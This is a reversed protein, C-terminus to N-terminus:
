NLFGYKKAAISDIWDPFFYKVLQAPGYYSPMFTSREKANSSEMIKLACDKPDLNSTSPAKIESKDMQSADLAAKRLETNVSGPMISIISINHRKWEIRLSDMFGNLASKTACYLTRTPAGFVGAISSVVVVRGEKSAKLLSFFHKCALIPGFVNVSFIDTMVHHLSSTSTSTDNSSDSCLEEFTLLSIVGMCCILTDCGGLDSQAVQAIKQVNEEQTADMALILIKSKLGKKGILAVCEKQVQELLNQRRAVLLVDDGKSAYLLALEKGIGSSAGLICVKQRKLILKKRLKQRLLFLKFAYFSFFAALIWGATSSLQSM